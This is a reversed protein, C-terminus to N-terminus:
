PIAALNKLHSIKEWSFAEKQCPFIANNTFIPDSELDYRSSDVAQPWIATHPIPSYYSLVPTIGNKKVTKISDVISEQKQGPLGILLYAGMMDRNFGADTLCSVARRFERDTLKEDLGLRQEFVAT